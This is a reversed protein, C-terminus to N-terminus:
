TTIYVATARGLVVCILGLVVNIGINSMASASQGARLLEYTEYGFTSFTTFSGLLGVVLFSRMSPSLAQRSDVSGLLVGIVLCGVVNVLLTGLPFPGHTYRRLFDTIGFRAIAGIFGGLGIILLKLVAPPM